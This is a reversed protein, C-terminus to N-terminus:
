KKKASKKEEKPSLLGVIQDLKRGLDDLKAMLEANSQGGFSRRDRNGGRSSGRSERGGKKEFCDSCYIPKDGSPKFPVKCDKGCEDCVADYLEQRRSFDRRGRSRDSSRFNRM